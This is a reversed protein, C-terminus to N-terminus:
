AMFSASLIEQAEPGTNFLLDLISLDPFFPFKAEFVQTYPVIRTLPPNGSPSVGPSIAERCNVFSGPLTEFHETLRIEAELTLLELLTLLYEMNFDFLFTRKMEYFPRIDDAYFDFFPSNRYASTIARWHNLQWKEYWAIRLDRVPTCPKRGNEVPIVLALPGNSGLIVCRNRYTQKIYHEHQDLYVEGFGAIQSFYSVPGCYATSLLVKDLGSM